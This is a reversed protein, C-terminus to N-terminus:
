NLANIAAEVRAEIEARPLGAPLATGFRVVITGRRKWRRHYLAGSAVAVPVVPLGLLKYLGAFGAQLPVHQGHPVRTGEPFIVLPRSGHRAAAGIMARLARAGAARDVAILGYRRGLAGWLPIALLERKAFVMPLPLLNPLDIAEFYSEHRMAVLVARDPPPGEVRVGIGLLASCCWRHWRCWARVMAQLAGQPLLLTPLAAIVMVVTAGYFLTYFALSRVVEGATAPRDAAAPPARDTM